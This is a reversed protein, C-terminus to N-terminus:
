LVMMGKVSQTEKLKISQNGQTNRGSTPVDSLNIKITTSTSSIIVEKHLHTVAEIAVISDGLITKHCIVGKNARSGKTFEDLKTCKIYGRTTISAIHTTNKSICVAGAVEDDDKLTIGKVGMTNRGTPNVESADFMVFYGNSTCIGIIDSEKILFVNKIYDGDKLKIASVGNNKKIRYEKLETKKVTGFATIFLLYDSDKKGEDSIVTTILEGDELDLVMSLPTKTNLELKDLILNYVRGKNSFVLLNNYNTDSITQQIYENDALKLKTGVGGRRQAILTTDEYAYVNNLNTFHVVMQKKEVPTDDDGELSLNIVKTKRADGYEKKIRDLEKIVEIKFLEKSALIDELSKEEARRSKLETEIKIKELNILRQLKLDLIAKAQLEDFGFKDQLKSLADATNNSSKILRVVEDINAIAILYGELINIRAKVKNLDFKFGKRMCDQMHALYALMMERLGYIKPERGNELMYMSVSFSHQLSTEHYLQECVKNPSATKNLYIRLDMGQKGSENNAKAVGLLRGENLAKEIQGIVTDSYVQYPLERVVLANDESDYEITGRIIISSKGKGLGHGVQLLEKVIDGNVITGGTGFDPACYFDDYPANIDDLLVKVGDIVESVNFQPISSMCGVGIGTNGNCFNPFLTPLVTPYLSSETYNMKWEDVTDKDILRTFETAVKSSRLEVYRRAPHNDPSSQNGKQGRVEELPYRLAWPKAMRIINNWIGVDGHPNFKMTEAVSMDAKQYPKDHTLKNTYQAWLAFRAGTKLCDRADPLARTQIVYGAFPLYAEPVAVEVNKKIIKM